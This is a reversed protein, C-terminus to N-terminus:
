YSQLSRGFHARECLIVSLRFVFVYWSCASSHHRIFNSRLLAPAVVKLCVQRTTSFVHM